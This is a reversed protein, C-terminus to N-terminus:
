HVKTGNVSHDEEILMFWKGELNEEESCELLSSDPLKSMPTYCPHHHEKYPNNSRKNFCSIFVWRRLDSSNQDSTHLLNCHFFLMDGAKMEVYLHPLVKKAHEVREPEAGLQDGTKIHDIRGMRHSGHLIQLCGNERTCDDIPIFVTGLDPYMVSNNYWYGYDQHWVFAGGTKGDKMTVKSHYHYVEDGGMLQEITGAVRQIRPLVGSLDHGPHNWISQMVRRSNGDHRGFAYRMIGKSNSVARRVKQVEKQTLMGRVLIYGNKDFAEKMAPTVTWALPDYTFVSDEAM